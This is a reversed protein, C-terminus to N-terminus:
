RMEGNIIEETDKGFVERVDEPSLNSLSGDDKAHQAVVEKIARIREEATIVQELAGHAKATIKDQVAKVLQATYELYM